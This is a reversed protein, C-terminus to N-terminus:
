LINADYAVLVLLSIFQSQRGRAPGEEQIARPLRSQGGNGGNEEDTDIQPHELKGVSVDEFGNWKIM